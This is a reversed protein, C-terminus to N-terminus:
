INTLRVDVSDPKPGSIEAVLLREADSGANTSAHQRVISCITKLVDCADLAGARM